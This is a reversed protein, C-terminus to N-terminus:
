LFSIESNKKTNKLFFILIRVALGRFNNQFSNQRLRELMLKSCATVHFLCYEVNIFLNSKCLQKIVLTNEINAYPKERIVKNVSFQLCLFPAFFLMYFLNYIMNKLINYILNLCIFVHLITTLLKPKKLGMNKFCKTCNRNYKIM